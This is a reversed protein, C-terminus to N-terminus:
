SIRPGHGALSATEPNSTFKSFNNIFKLALDTAAIHWKIRSDWSKGPDTINDDVGKIKTPISLNFVPLKVFEQDKISDDLIVRIIRRTTQLDIRSGTGYPGGMWGTNVLWAESGHNKMKRSLENLNIVPDTMLFAACFCPSFIPVTEAIGRETIAIRSTYGSLFYYESQEETLRSVM